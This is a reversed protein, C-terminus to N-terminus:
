YMGSIIYSFSLVAVAPLQQWKFAAALASQIVNLCITFDSKAWKKEKRGQIV